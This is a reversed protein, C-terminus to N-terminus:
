SADDCEASPPTQQTLCLALFQSIHANVILFPFRLLSVLTFGNLGEAAHIKRFGDGLSSYM